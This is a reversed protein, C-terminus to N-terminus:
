ASTKWDLVAVEGDVRAIADFSGAYQHTDSWVTEELYLFEPQVEELFERFHRVHPKVDSHVHRDNVAEGRALREFIDHAASGLDTAAKSKRRHAGKLYDIAGAEDRKILQSILDWNDVAATASEKAAWYILFDKPLMNAVSTVGPVKSRADGPNVYLRSGGRKITSGGAM